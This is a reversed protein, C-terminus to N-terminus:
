AGRLVEAVNGSAATRAPGWSVALSWALSLFAVAGLDVPDLRFPVHTLAFLREPLPIAGTRDLLLAISAGLALGVATGFAGVLGGAALFVSAVQAPTAGLVALVAADGTRTAALVAATAALNLGAVVVILSVTAFLVIRELRLALVLAENLEEWTRVRVGNGLLARISSAAKESRGPDALRVEYGSAGGPPVAFLRGAATLPLAVEPARRGAPSALVQEIKMSAVIPVPGLPSLRTRSSVLLVEEGTFAALTRAHAPDIRLGDVGERGVGEAPVSQERVSIWLRGRVVPSVSVVGPLGAIRAGIGEAGAFDGRGSPEVLLHPTEELLRGRVHQQFGSLLALSIVLAAVGLALGLFAALAVM